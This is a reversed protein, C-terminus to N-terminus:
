VAVEALEFTERGEAKGDLAYFVGGGHDEAVAGSGDAGSVDVGEEDVLGVHAAVDGFM